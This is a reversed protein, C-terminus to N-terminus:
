VTSVGTIHNMMKFNANFIHILHTEICDLMKALDTKYYIQIQVSVKLQM